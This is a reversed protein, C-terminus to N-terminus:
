LIERKSANFNIAAALAADMSAAHLEFWEPLRSAVYNKAMLPKGVFFNMESLLKEHEDIHERRSVHNIETMARNEADFHARTHDILEWFGNFFTEGEAVITRDLLAVFEKHTTDMFGVGLEYASKWEMM